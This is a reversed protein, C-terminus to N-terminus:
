SNLSLQLIKKYIYEGVIAHEDLDLHLGDIKSVQVVDNLDLFDINRRESIEKYIKPLELSKERGGSVDILVQDGRKRSIEEIIIPPILLVKPLNGNKDRGELNIMDLCQEIGMGIDNATQNYKSKFNNGGLALIILDLPKQSELCSYLYNKGNKGEKNPSDLHTTRGNLGEEIIEFTDGLLNQLVGTWRINADFRKSNDDGPVRGWTNSDGFALIRISTPNTNM